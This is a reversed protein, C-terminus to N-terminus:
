GGTGVAVDSLQICSGGGDQEIEWCDAACNVVEEKFSREQSRHHNKEQM